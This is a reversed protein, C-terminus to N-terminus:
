ETEQDQSENGNWSEVYLQNTAEDMSVKLGLNNEVVEEENLVFPGYKAVVAAFLVQVGEFDM